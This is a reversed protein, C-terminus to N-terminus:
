QQGELDMQARLARIASEPYERRGTRTGVFRLKGSAAWMDVTRASVGLRQAAERRKWRKEPAPAAQRLADDRRAALALVVSEHYRVEGDPESTWTLYGAAALGAVDQKGAGLIVSTEGLTLLPDGGPSCFRRAM